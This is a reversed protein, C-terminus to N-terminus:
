VETNNEFFDPTRILVDGANQLQNIELTNTNSHASTQAGLAKKMNQFVQDIQEALQQKSLNQQAKKIQEKLVNTGKKVLPRAENVVVGEILPTWRDIYQKADILQQNREKYQTELKKAKANFEDKTLPEETREERHVLYLTALSEDTLESGSTVFKTVVSDVNPSISNTENKDATESSESGVEDDLALETGAEVKAEPNAGAEEVSTTTEATETVPTERKKHVEFAARALEDRVINPDIGELTPALTSVANKIRSQIEGETKGQLVAGQLERILNGFNTRINTRWMKEQKEDTLAENNQALDARQEGNVKGSSIDGSGTDSPEVKKKREKEDLERRLERATQYGIRANKKAATLKKQTDELKNQLNANEDSLEMVFGVAKQALAQLTEANKETEVGNVSAEVKAPKPIDAEYMKAYRALFKRMNRQSDTLDDEDIPHAEIWSSLEKMFKQHEDQRAKEINHEQPRETKNQSPNSGNHRTRMQTHQERLKKEEERLNQRELALNKQEDQEKLAKKAEDEVLKEFETEDKSAEYYKKAYKAVKYQLIYKETAENVTPRSIIKLAPQEKFNGEQMQKIGKQYWELRKKMHTNQTEIEKLKKQTKLTAKVHNKMSEESRLATEIIHRQIEIQNKLRIEENQEQTVQSTTESATKNTITTATSLASQPKVPKKNRNTNKGTGGTNTLKELEHEEKELAEGMSQKTTHALSTITEKKGPNEQAATTAEKKVHNTAKKERKEDAELLEDVLYQLQELQEQIENLSSPEKSALTNAAEPKTGNLSIPQNLM